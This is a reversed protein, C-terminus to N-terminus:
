DQRSSILDGFIEDMEEPNTDEFAEEIAEESSEEKEVEKLEM